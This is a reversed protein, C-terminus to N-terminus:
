THILFLGELVIPRLCQFTLAEAALMQGSLNWTGWPATVM